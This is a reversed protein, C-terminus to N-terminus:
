SHRPAEVVCGSLATVAAAVALVMSIRKMNDGFIDTRM